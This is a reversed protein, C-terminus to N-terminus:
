FSTPNNHVTPINLVSILVCYTEKNENYDVLVVLIPHSPLIFTALKKISHLSYLIFIDTPPVWCIVSCKSQQNFDFLFYGLLLFTFDLHLVFYDM